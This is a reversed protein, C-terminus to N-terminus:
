LGIQKKTFEYLLAISAVILGIIFFYVLSSFKEKLSMKNVGKGDLNINVTIM